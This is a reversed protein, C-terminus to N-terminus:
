AIEQKGGFGVTRFCAVLVTARDIRVLVVFDRLRAVIRVLIPARVRCMRGGRHLVLVCLWPVRVRCDVVTCVLGFATCPCVHGRLLAFIRRCYLRDRRVPSTCAICRASAFGADISLGKLCAFVCWLTFFIAVVITESHCSLLFRTSWVLAPLPHGEAAPTFM